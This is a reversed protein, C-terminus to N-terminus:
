ETHNNSNDLPICGLYQGPVPDYVLYEKGIKESTFYGMLTLSKISRFFTVPKPNPELMIGWMSIPFAPSQEDQETLFKEKQTDSLDIFSTEYKNKCTTEFERLGDKMKQQESSNLLQAIMKDIFQPVGIETAGPSTNTKPLITETIASITAAQQPNFFLPKWDLAAEQRCSNLLQTIAGASLTYGLLLTTQKIYARRDM